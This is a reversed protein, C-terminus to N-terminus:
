EGTVVDSEGQYDKGNERNYHCKEGMVMSELFFPM